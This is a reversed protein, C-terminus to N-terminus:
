VGAALDYGAADDHTLIQRDVLNRVLMKFGQDLPMGARASIMAGTLKERPNERRSMRVREVILTEASSLWRGARPGTEGTAVDAPGAIITVANKRSKVRVTVVRPLKFRLVALLSYACGKLRDRTRAVSPRAPKPSTAMALNLGM